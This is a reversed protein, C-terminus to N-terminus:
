FPFYVVVVENVEVICCGSLLGLLDDVCFFVIVFVVVAVHVACHM